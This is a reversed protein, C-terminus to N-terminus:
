RQVEMFIKPGLRWMLTYSEYLRRCARADNSTYYQDRDTRNTEVDLMENWLKALNVNDLSQVPHSAHEECRECDNYLAVALEDSPIDPDPHFRHISM